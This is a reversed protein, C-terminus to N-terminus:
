QPNPTIDSFTLWFTCAALKSKMITSNLQEVLQPKWPTFDLENIPILWVEDHSTVLEDGAGRIHFKIVSLTNLLRGVEDVFFDGPPATLPPPPGKKFREFSRKFQVASPM